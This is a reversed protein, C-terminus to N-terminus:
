LSEITARHRHAVALVYGYHRQETWRLGKWSVRLGNRGVTSVAGLSEIGEGLAKVAAEKRCWIRVSEVAPAGALYRAEDSTLVSSIVGLTAATDRELDVGVPSNSVAAFVGGTAHALSIHVDPLDRFLPQGHFGGCTTCEQVLDLSGSIGARRAVERALLHAALYDARDGPNRFTEAKALEASSLVMTQGGLRELVTATQGWLALTRM